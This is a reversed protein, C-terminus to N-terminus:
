ELAGGKQRTPPLAIRLLRSSITLEGKTVNDIAIAPKIRNNVARLEIMGGRQLFRKGDSVTLVGTLQPIAKLKQLTDQPIYLVECNTSAQSLSTISTVTASRNPPTKRFLVQKLTLTATDSGLSCYRIREPLPEPWRVFNAFHYLYLAKVEHPPYSSNSQANSDAQVYPAFLLSVVLFLLCLQRAILPQWNCTAALRNHYLMPIFGISM